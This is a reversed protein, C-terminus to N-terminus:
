EGSVFFAALYKALFSNREMFTIPYKIEGNEPTNL